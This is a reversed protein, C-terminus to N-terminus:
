ETLSSLKVNSVPCILFLSEINKAVSQDTCSFMLYFNQFQEDSDCNEVRYDVDLNLKKLLIELNLKDDIGLQLFSELIADFPNPYEIHYVVDFMFEALEPHLNFTLEYINPRHKIWEWHEILEKPYEPFSMSEFINYFEIAKEKKEENILEARVVSCRVFVARMLDRIQSRRGIIDSREKKIKYETEPSLEEPIKYELYQPPQIKLLSFFYKPIYMGVCYKEDEKFKKLWEIMPYILFHLLQYSNPSFQRYEKEDGILFPFQRDPDYEKGLYINVFKLVTDLDEGAYEKFVVGKSFSMINSATWEDPRYYNECIYKHSEVTQVPFLNFLDVVYLEEVKQPVGTIFYSYFRERQKKSYGDSYDDKIKEWKKQREIIWAENNVISLDIM